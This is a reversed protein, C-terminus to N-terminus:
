LGLQIAAGCATVVLGAVVHGYRELRAFSAKTLGLCVVVVITTMTALTTVAFVLAVLAVGWLSLKAAPYMLLPILPECPGFVFITFLIWPTMSAAKEEATHVHAHDAVHGHPHTHALGGEHVHAHTHPQNRIARRVGWITYALGFGLLLWGALNGRLGEFWELQILATGLAIGLLGLVVSSGVHGVGCVLTIVVTKPLSWRGIRSMAVFPLYHDPGFLTHFFGLLVATGALTTM